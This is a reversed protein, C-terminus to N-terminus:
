GQILESWPNDLQSLELLRDWCPDQDIPKVQYRPVLAEVQSATVSEPLTSLLKVVIALICLAFGEDAGACYDISVAPAYDLGPPIKGARVRIGYLVRFFGVEWVKNESKWRRFLHEDPETPSFEM